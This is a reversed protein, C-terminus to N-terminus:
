IRQAGDGQGRGQGQGQGVGTFLRRAELAQPAFLALPPALRGRAPILCVIRDIARDKAGRAGAARFARSAFLPARKYILAFTDARYM